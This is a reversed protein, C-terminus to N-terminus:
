KEPFTNSRVMLRRLSGVAGGGMAACFRGDGGEGAEAGGLFEELM